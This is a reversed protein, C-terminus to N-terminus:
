KIYRHNNKCCSHIYSNQLRKYYKIYVNFLNLDEKIKNKTIVFSFVSFYFFLRPPVEKIVSFYFNNQIQSRKYPKVISM